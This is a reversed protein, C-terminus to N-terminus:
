ASEYQKKLEKIRAVFDKDKDFMGGELKSAYNFAVDIKQRWLNVLELSDSTMAKNAIKEVNNIVKSGMGLTAVKGAISVTKLATFGVKSVTKLADQAATTKAHVLANVIFNLLEEKEKPPDINGVYLLQASHLKEKSEKSLRDADLGCLDEYKSFITEVNDTELHKNTDILTKIEDGSYLVVETNNSDQNKDKNFLAM